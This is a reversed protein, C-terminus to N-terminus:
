ELRGLKKLINRSRNDADEAHHFARHCNPCIAVVNRVTDSGGDALPLVHHVELFPRGSETVFPAPKDCAECKDGANDLVWAKVRPDRVFSTTQRMEQVPQIIGSPIVSANGSTLITQVQSDFEEDVSTPYYAEGEEEFGWPESPDALRFEDFRSVAHFHWDAPPKYNQIRQLSLQADLRDRLIAGRDRTSEKVCVDLFELAGDFRTWLSASPPPPHRSWRYAAEIAGNDILPYMTYDRHTAMLSFLFLRDSEDNAVRKPVRDDFSAAADELEVNEDLVARLAHEAADTDNRSWSVLQSLPGKRDTTPLSLFATELMRPWQEGGTTVADSVDALKEAFRKCSAREAQLSNDGPVVRNSWYVFRDWSDFRIPALQKQFQKPVHLASINAALISAADESLEYCYGQNATGSSNIPAYELSLEQIRSAVQAVEIPRSLEVYRCTVLWGEERAAKESEPHPRGTARKGGETAISIAIIAGHRHHFCIDGKKIRQVNRHHFITRGRKDRRTAWVYGWQREEDYSHNQNIWWWAMGGSKANTIRNYGTEDLSLLTSLWGREDVYRSTTDFWRVPVRHAYPEGDAYYYPGTVTGLGLVQTRGKNAVIVDGTKIQSFTWAQSPGRTNRGWRPRTQRLRHNREIFEPRDIKTLDGFEWWGLSIYGGRRCELWNRGDQGPAVKWYKPKGVSDIENVAM